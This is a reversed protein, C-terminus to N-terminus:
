FIENKLLEKAANYGNSGHLGGGPHTGPGCLYLNKIPTYYKAYSITPRMFLVQNLTMEGHNLNGETLGLMKEIDLPSFVYCSDLISKFNPIYSNLIEIVNNKLQEKITQNWSITKLQYPTYQITASLIHHNNICFKDNLASPITFEIYPRDAITKYKVSDAAQELFKINPAITFVTNLNKHAVNKIDPLKKLIFHIRSVCGNFKINKIQRIISPKLEQADILNLFTNKPDLGSVVYRSQLIKKDNISVGYCANDKINISCVKTNVKITVGNSKASKRLSEVLQQTGGKIFISNNFVNDTFTHNHLLNFGTAAAYPGQGLGHIASASIAGRLLSSEFWQNMLEPMMMSSTRIFDMLGKTGFKFLPSVLSKLSIIEKYNINTIDPPSSHYLKELFQSSKGIHKLFLPWKEADKLSHHKISEITKNINKHFYIHNQNEDLAIKVLESDHFSLGHSVLNLESLIRSDLSQLYDYILNCKFGKSLENTSALGGLTPRSELLLVNKGSKSLMSACILSNVGGGIVIIDYENM